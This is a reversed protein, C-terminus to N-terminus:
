FPLEDINVQKFGEANVKDEWGYVKNASLISSIRKTSKSYFLQIPKDDNTLIGTLRNKTISLLGDCDISDNRNRSYSMVVDVANTIDASGSVDDNKFTGETKRQILM